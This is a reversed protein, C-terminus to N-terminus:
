NTVVRALGADCGLMKTSVMARAKDTCLSVDRPRPAHGTAEETRQAVLLGQNLKMHAVIRRALELRSLRETGAIHLLGAETGSALELLSESLTLVDVSTRWQDCFQGVTAGSKLQDVMRQVSSTGGTCSFGVVHATRVITAEPCIRQTVDESDLKTQGYFNIPGTADTESYWSSTGDFVTDTSLLVLRSDSQACQEAIYQTGMVNVDWAEKQHEEAYDISAIAASHIVADPHVVAFLNEVAAKDTVDL